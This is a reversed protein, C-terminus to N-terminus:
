ISNYLLQLLEVSEEVGICPDTISKGYETPPISQKGEIINSEIMVGIISNSHSLLYNIVYKQNRYNKESNAHSCDIMINPIIHKELMKARTYEINEITYNVGTNGGRLIIHCEKNGKTEVICAIGQDTIGPFCHKYSASLIGNVAVDINGSTGNKFGIPMSLGSALQRHLQCESTRAGIAGWSILDAIYQPIITDLFECGIPIEMETLKLLLSRALILGVSIDNTDNIYPDYILGKWGVNTRPKEFYVRMIIFLKDSFKNIWKKIYVAYDSAEEINHISCPGIVILKRPDNGNLINKITNRYIKIRRQNEEDLSYIEKLKKPSVINIISDVNMDTM